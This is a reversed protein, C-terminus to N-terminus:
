FDYIEQTAFDFASWGKKRKQNINWKYNALFLKLLQTHNLYSAKMLLTENNDFYIERLDLECDILTAFFLINNEEIAKNCQNTVVKKNLIM